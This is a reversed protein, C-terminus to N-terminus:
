VSFEDPFYFIHNTFTETTIFEKKIISMIHTVLIERWTINADSLNRLKKQYWSIRSILTNRSNWTVFYNLKFYSGVTIWVTKQTTTLHSLFRCPWSLWNNTKPSHRVFDHYWEVQLSGVKQKFLQYPYEQHETIQYLSLIPSLWIRILLFQIRDSWWRYFQWWFTSEGILFGSIVSM